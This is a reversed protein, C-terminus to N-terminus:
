FHYTARLQGSIDKQGRQGYTLNLGADISVPGRSASVGFSVETAFRGTFQSAYSDTVGTSFGTTRSSIKTNGAQAIISIDATPSVKWAAAELDGRVAIGVPVQLGKTSGTKIKFAEKGDLKIRSNDTNTFVARLGVHPVVLAQRNLPIRVESRVGALWVNSKVNAKAQNFGTLVPDLGMKLDSNSRFYGFNGIINFIENVAYNGYLQVGFTKTDAKTALVNGESDANGKAFSFAGGVRINGFKHDGGFIFGFVNRDFGGTQKGAIKLSDIKQKAGLIDLWLNVGGAEAIMLGQSNFTEGTFSLRNGVSDAADKADESAIRVAGIGQSITAVSNIAKTKAKIDFGNNKITHSIFQYDTGAGEKLGQNVNKPVVVDLYVEEAKQRAIDVWISNEDKGAELVWDLGSGDENLAYLHDRDLWSSLDKVTFGETILQRGEKDINGLILTSGSEVEVPLSEDTTFAPAGALNSTDLIVFSNKGFVLSNSTSQTQPLSHKATGVALGGHSGLEVSSGIVVKSVSEPLQPAAIRNDFSNDTGVILKGNGVVYIHGDVQNQTVFDLRAENTPSLEKNNGIVLYGGNNLSINGFRTTGGAVIVKGADINLEKGELNGDNKLTGTSDVDILKWQAEGTNEATGKVLVHNWQSLAGKEILEFGGNEIDLANGKEVGNQSVRNSGKNVITLDNFVTIGQKETSSKGSVIANGANTLDMSGTNILRGGNNIQIFSNNAPSRFLRKQEGIQLTGSNVVVGDIIVKNWTSQAGDEVLQSGEKSINLSVGRESGGSKVTNRGTLDMEGYLSTAGLSTITDGEVAVRGASLDTQFQNNLTKGKGIFVGGGNVDGTISLSGKNLLTTPSQGSLNISGTQVEANREINILGDGSIKTKVGWHGNKFTTVGDNNVNDVWGTHAEITGHSGFEFVSGNETKITGGKGASESLLLRNDDAWQYPNSKSLSRGVLAAKLGDKVTATEVAKVNSFGINASIYHDEHSPDGSDKGWVVANHSVGGVSNDLSHETLIVGPVVVPNNSTSGQESFLTEIHDISLEDYATDRAFSDVLKGLYVVSVERNEGAAKGIAASSKAITDLTIEPDNFAITGKNWDISEAVGDKLKESKPFTFVSSTINEADMASQADLRIVRQGHDTFLADFSSLLAGGSLNIVKKAGSVNLSGIKLLGGENLTVSGDDTVQNVILTSMGDFSSDKILADRDSKLTGKWSSNGVIYNNGDLTDLGYDVLNIVAGDALEVTSDKFFESTNLKAESGRHIYHTNSYNNARGVTFTGANDINGKLSTANKATFEAGKKISLTCKGGLMEIREVSVVQSDINYSSSKDLTLRKVNSVAGKHVSSSGEGNMYLHDIATTGKQDFKGNVILATEWTDGKDAFTYNQAFLQGGNFVTVSSGADIYTPGIVRYNGEITGSRLQITHDEETGMLVTKSATGGDNASLFNGYNGNHDPNFWIASSNAVPAGTAQFTTRSIVPTLSAIRNALTSDTNLFTLYRSGVAVTNDLRLMGDIAEIKKAGFVSNELLMLYSHENTSKVFDTLFLSGSDLLLEGNLILSGTWMTGANSLMAKEGLTISGLNIFRGNKKNAADGDIKGNGVAYFDGDNNMTNGAHANVSEDVFYDTNIQIKARFDNKLEGYIDLSDFVATGTNEFSQHLSTNGLSEFKGSNAYKGLMEYGTLSSLTGENTVKSLSNDAIKKATVTAGNKVKVDANSFDLYDESVKGEFNKQVAAHVSATSVLSLLLGTLLWTMGHFYNAEKRPSFSESKTDKHKAAAIENTVVFEKRSYSWITKFIKNM